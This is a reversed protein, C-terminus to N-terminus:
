ARRTASRKVKKLKPSTIPEPREDLADIVLRTGGIQMGGLMLGGLNNVDDAYSPQTFVGGGVTAFQTALLNPYSYAQGGRSVTGNMYGATLSNGVAVYTTFNAEGASYEANIENEFEPECSAFGAALVALYIFKNKMTKKIKFNSVM